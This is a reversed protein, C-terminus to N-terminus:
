RITFNFQVWLFVSGMPLRDNDSKILRWQKNRGHGFPIRFLWLRLHYLSALPWICGVKNDRSHATFVSVTLDWTCPNASMNNGSTICVSRKSTRLKMYYIYVRSCIRSRRQYQGIHQNISITYATRRIM